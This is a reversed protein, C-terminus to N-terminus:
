KYDLIEKAIDAPHGISAVAEKESLGEEMKDDIMESYFGLHEAKEQRSLSSLAKKLAKIFEKKDM